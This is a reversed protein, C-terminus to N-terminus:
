VPEPCVSGAASGEDDNQFAGKPMLLSLGTIIELGLHEPSFFPYVIQSKELWLQLRHESLIKM